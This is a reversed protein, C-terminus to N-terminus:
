QAPQVPTMIKSYMIIHGNVIEPTKTYIEIMPGLARHRQVQIFEALALHAKGLERGPGKFSLTAVKMAPMTRTKIGRFARGSGRFTIAIESLCKERPVKQPDDLYIGIPYPGPLVKQEEAWAFLEGMLESWPIDDYPGQHEIYAILTEKRDEFKPKM